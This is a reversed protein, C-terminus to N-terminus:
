FRACLPENEPAQSQMESRIKSLSPQIEQTESGRFAIERTSTWYWRKRQWLISVEIDGDDHVIGNYTFRGRSDSELVGTFEIGDEVREALYEGPLFGCRTCIDSWFHGESFELRDQLDPSGAPGIMGAFVRGDLLQGANTVGAMVLWLLVARAPISLPRTM